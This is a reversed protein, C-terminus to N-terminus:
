KMGHLTVKARAGRRFTQAEYWVDVKDIHRDTGVLDIVRTSGGAPINNRLEIDQTQGNTFTVKLKIFHVAKQQVTLKIKRFEGRGAGVNWVDHDARDLVNRTGLNDWSQALVASTGISLVFLVSSIIFLKKLM